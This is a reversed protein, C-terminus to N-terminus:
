PRGLYTPSSDSTEFFRKQAEGLFVRPPKEWGALPLSKIAAVIERIDSPSIGAPVTAAAVHAVPDIVMSAAGPVMPAAIAAAAVKMADRRTLENM